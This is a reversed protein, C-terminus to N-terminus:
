SFLTPCYRHTSNDSENTGRRRPEDVTKAAFLSGGFKNKAGSKEKKVGKSLSENEFAGSMRNSDENELGIM